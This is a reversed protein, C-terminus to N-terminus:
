DVDRRSTAIADERSQAFLRKKGRVCAGANAYLILLANLGATTHQQPQGSTAQLGATTITVM